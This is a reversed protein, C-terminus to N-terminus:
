STSDQEHWKGKEYLILALEKEVSKPWIMLHGYETTWRWKKSMYFNNKKWTPRRRAKKSM